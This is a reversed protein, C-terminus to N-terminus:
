KQYSMGNQFMNSLLPGLATGQASGREVTKWESIHDNAKVRNLREDFFSRILDLSGSGFGYADLKKIALSHRLSDFAKSMDTSLITVMEKRDVAQKWEELLTLLTTECSHQRRYATMRQYLTSDFHGVIQKSLLNEFIKDVCVLSTIPRYNKKEQRNDCKKFVPTWEGM